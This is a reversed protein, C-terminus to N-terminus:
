RYVADYRIQLSSLFPTASLPSGTANEILQAGTYCLGHRHINRWLWDKLGRFNGQEFQEDLNGIEREAAAFLQAAALSGLTYTPFYGFLGAGWHVDQLVGDAASPSRIGLYSEYADDWATPLDVVQLDGAVLAKELEFRIIIHLNYTAEDAEVRVLSPQVFNVAAHLDYATCDALSPGLWQKAQPLLWNWFALSRGVQNEWLRSQSEHIGLSVYSGPPLGYWDSRLGQEYIGHGAEHMTGFLGAPFWHEDYRSLIRCDDPGLNSCFPHSTEDLRGRGFDFGISEAVYHSLERQGNLCCYRQLISADPKRPAEALRAVLDVLPKRLTEFLEALAHVRAGPEYEDLLAEYPDGGGALLNGEERKLSVMESLAPAFITFDDAKRAADWAQHARVRAQALHKVLSVPLKCNRRWNRLLERLTTSVHGHPDHGNLSQSLTQLDEGFSPETLHKHNMARLMSVQKARYECAATPM